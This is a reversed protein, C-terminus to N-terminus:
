ATSLTYLRHTHHNDDTIIHLLIQVSRQMSGAPVSMQGDDRREQLGASVDVDRIRYDEVLRM